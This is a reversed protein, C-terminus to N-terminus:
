GGGLGHSTLAVDVQGGLCAHLDVEAVWVAGRLAAGALVGVAQEPLVQGLTCVEAYEALFLEIADGLAEVGPRASRMVPVCRQLHERLGQCAGM